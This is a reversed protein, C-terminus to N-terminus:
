PFITQAQKPFLHTRNDARFSSNRQVMLRATKSIENFFGRRRKTKMRWEYFTKPCIVPRVAIFTNKLAPSLLPLRCDDNESGPCLRHRHFAFRLVGLKASFHWRPASMGLRISRLKNSRQVSRSDVNLTIRPYPSEEDWEHCTLSSFSGENRRRKRNEIEWSRPLFRFDCLSVVFLRGVITTRPSM